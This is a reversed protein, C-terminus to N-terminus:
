GHERLYLGVPCSLCAKKECRERWLHIQGQTQWANKAPFAWRAYLRSIHHDEPPLTRLRNVYELSREIQGLLRYYYVAFPYLANIRLNQLLFASPRKLPQPLPKQWAWHKQWYPSPLPLAEPPQGILTALDPYQLLMQAMMSLRIAPSAAPRYRPWRLSLPRLDHKARLYGWRELIAVEYPEAKQVAEEGLLGAMGLLLAEIALGDGQYRLVLAPPLAQALMRFPEGLAPLGFGYLLAEWFARYLDDMTRYRQHRSKLRAEGETEYLSEWVAQPVDQALAACPFPLETATLQKQLSEVVFPALPVVPVVRGQHDRVQAGGDAEWVVQAVVQGFAPNEHHGHQYWGQPVVDIEVDGIWLLGGIRLRAGRFDPGGERGRAQGPHLVEVAEGSVTQLAPRYLRRVWIAHLVVESPRRVGVL